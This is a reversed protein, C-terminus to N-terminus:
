GHARRYGERWASVADLSLERGQPDRIDHEDWWRSRQRRRRRNLRDQVKAAREEAYQVWLANWEPDYTPVPQRDQCWKCRLMLGDPRSSDKRFFQRPVSHKGRRCIKLTRIYADDTM